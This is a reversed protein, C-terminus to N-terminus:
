TEAMLDPNLLTLQSVITPRVTVRVSWLSLTPDPPVVKARIAYNMAISGARHSRGHPHERLCYRFCRFKDMDLSADPQTPYTDLIAEGTELARLLVETYRIPYISPSRLKWRPM